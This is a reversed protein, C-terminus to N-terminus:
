QRGTKSRSLTRDRIQWHPSAATPSHATARAYADTWKLPRPTSEGAALEADKTAAPATQVEVTIVGLNGAEVCVRTASDLRNAIWENATATAADANFLTETGLTPLDIEVTVLLPVDHDSVRLVAPASDVHVTDYSLLRRNGCMVSWLPPAVPAAPVHKTTFKVFPNGFKRAVFASPVPRSTRLALMSDAAFFGVLHRQGLDEWLAEAPETGTLVAVEDGVPYVPVGDASYRNPPTIIRPRFGPPEVTVGFSRLWGEASITQSRPLTVQWAFWTADGMMLPPLSTAPLGKPIFAQANRLLIM